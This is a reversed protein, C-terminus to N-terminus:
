AWDRVVNFVIDSLENMMDITLQLPKDEPFHFLSGDTLRELWKKVYAESIGNVGVPDAAKLAPLVEDTWWASTSQEQEFRRWDNGEIHNKYHEDFAADTVNHIVYGWLLNEEIKAKNHRYFIKNNEYWENTDKARVHVPWRVEKPAFGYANVSDPYICGLYFQPLNTIKEYRDKIFKGVYLHMLASAM